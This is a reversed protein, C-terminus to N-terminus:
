FNGLELIMFELVLILAIGAEKGSTMRKRDTLAM